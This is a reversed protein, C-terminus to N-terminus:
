VSASSTGGAQLISIKLLLLFLDRRMRIFTEGLFIKLVDQFGCIRVSAVLRNAFLSGSLQVSKLEGRPM